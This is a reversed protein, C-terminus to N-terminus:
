ETKEQGQENEKHSEQKTLEREKLITLIRAIDKKVKRIDRHNKVQKAAVKFRFDRLKERLEILLKQLEKDSKERM